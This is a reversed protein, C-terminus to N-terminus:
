DELDISGDAAIDVYAQLVQVVTPPQELNMVCTLHDSLRSIWGSNCPGGVELYAQVDADTLGHELLWTEVLDHEGCPYDMARQAFVYTSPMTRLWAAYDEHHLHRWAFTALDTGQQLLPLAM